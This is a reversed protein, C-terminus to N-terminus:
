ALTCVQNEGLSTESFRFVFAGISEGGSPQLAMVYITKM